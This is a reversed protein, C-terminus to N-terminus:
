FKVGGWCYIGSRKLVVHPYYWKLFGVDIMERAGNMEAYESNVARECHALGVCFMGLGSQKWRAITERTYLVSM